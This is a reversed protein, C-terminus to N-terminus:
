RNIDAAKKTAVIASMVANVMYGLKLSSTIVSTRPPIKRQKASNKPKRTAPAILLNTLYAWILFCKLEIACKEQSM